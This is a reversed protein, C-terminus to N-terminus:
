KLKLQRKLKNALKEFDEDFDGEDVCDQLHSAPEDDHCEYGRLDKSVSVEGQSVTLTVTCKAWRDENSTDPENRSLTIGYDFQGDSWRATGYHEGDQDYEPKSINEVDESDFYFDGVGRYNGDDLTFGHPFQAQGAESLLEEAESKSHARVRVTASMTQDVTVLAEYLQGDEPGMITSLARAEAKKDEEVREFTASMTKWDRFGMMKAVVELADQHKIGLNLENLAAKLIRAQDKPQPQHQM